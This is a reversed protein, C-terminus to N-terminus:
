LGAARELGVGAAELTEAVLLGARIDSKLTIPDDARLLAITKHVEALANSVAVIAERATHARRVRSAARAVIDPFSKCARRSGRRSAGCRWRTLTSRTPSAAARITAALRSRRRPRARFRRWARHTSARGPRLGSAATAAARERRARERATGAPRAARPGARGQAPEPRPPPKRSRSASRRASRPASRSGPSFLVVLRLCRFDM